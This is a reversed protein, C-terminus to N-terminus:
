WKLQTWRQTQVTENKLYLCFQIIRGQTPMRGSGGLLRTHPSERRKGKGNKNKKKQKGTKKQKQYDGIAATTDMTENINM